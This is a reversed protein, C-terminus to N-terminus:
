RRGLAPLPSRAREASCLDDCGPPGWGAGWAPRVSTATDQGRRTVPCCERAARGRRPLCSIGTSGVQRGWAGCFKPM